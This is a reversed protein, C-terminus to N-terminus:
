RLYESTSESMQYIKFLVGEWSSFRTRSQSLHWCELTKSQVTSLKNGLMRATLASFWVGYVCWM